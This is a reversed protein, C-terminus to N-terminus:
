FIFSFYLNYNKFKLNEIKIKSNFNKYKIYFTTYYNEKTDGYPGEWTETNGKLEKDFYSTDLNIEGMIIKELTIKINVNNKIYEVAFLQSEIGSGNEYGMPIDYIINNDIYRGTFKLLEQWRNYMWSYIKYNEFKTNIYGNLLKFIYQTGYGWAFATPKYDEAGSETLPVVFDDMAFEGYVKLGKLPLFEGDIAFMANSYGEGYTNHLINMFNLDVIDPFKGGILNLENISVRLFNFPKLDLRHILLTKYPDDYGIGISRRDANGDISMKQIEKEENTLYPNFIYAGFYIGINGLLFNTTFGGTLGEVFPLSDSLFVGHELLSWNTKYRGIIFWFSNIKKGYYYTLKLNYNNTLNINLGINKNKIEFIPILQYNDTSFYPINIYTKIEKEQDSPYPSISTELAGGKLTRNFIYIKYDIDNEFYFSFVSSSFIIIFFIIILKKM